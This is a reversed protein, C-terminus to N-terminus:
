WDFDRGLLEFLRENHPRYVRRLLSATEAPPKQDYEGVHIASRKGQHEMRPVGLFDSVEDIVEDPRDRLRRSELVLLQARPFRTLFRELQEAYFGRRVYGPEGPERGVAIDALEEEVATAFDRSERRPAYVLPRYAGWGRYMNWASFARDVPERLLVVLKVRRDYRLIRDASRPYYLYEPTAEFTLRGPGLVHPLPFQGHYWSLARRYERPDDFVTRGGHWLASHLPHTPWQEYPEPAFFGVEKEISPRLRPHEALYYYLATTGAKQAGIILFGPRSHYGGRVLLARLRRTFARWGPEIGPEAAPENASPPGLGM